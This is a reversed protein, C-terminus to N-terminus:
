YGGGSVGLANEKEGSACEPIRPGPGPDCGGGGGDGPINNGCDGEPNKGRRLGLHLSIYPEKHFITHM